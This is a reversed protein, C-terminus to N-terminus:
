LVNASRMAPTARPKAAPPNSAFSVSASHAGFWGSHASTASPAIAAPPRAVPTLGSAVSRSSAQWTRSAPAPTSTVTGPSASRANAAAGAHTRSTITSPSAEPVAVAMPASSSRPAAARTADTVSSATASSGYELPVVPSGLPTSSM